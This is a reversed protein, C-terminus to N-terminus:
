KRQEQEANEMFWFIPEGSLGISEWLNEGALWREMWEEFSKAHLSFARGGPGHGHSNTDIAMVPPQPLACDLYSFYQCGWTCIALLKDTGSKRSPLFSGTHIDPLAGYLDEIAYLGYGPGFGGNGIKLYIDRLLEPLAFGLRAEVSALEAASAPPGPYDHWGGM